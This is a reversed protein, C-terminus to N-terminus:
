ALKQKTWGRQERLQKVIAGFREADPDLWKGRPM